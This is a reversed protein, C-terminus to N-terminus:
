TYNISKCVCVRFMCRIYSVDNCRESQGTLKEANLASMYKVSFKHQKNFIERYIQWVNDFGCQTYVTCMMSPKINTSKILEHMQPVIKCQVCRNMCLANVEVEHLPAWKM